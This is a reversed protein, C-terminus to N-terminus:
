VSDNEHSDASGHDKRIAWLSEAVIDMSPRDARTPAACEFALGLLRRLVEGHIEEKLLPDLIERMKGQTYKGFAQWLFGYLM